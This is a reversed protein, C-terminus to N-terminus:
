NRLKKEVPWTFAHQQSKTHQLPFMLIKGTQKPGATVATWVLVTRGEGAQGLPEALDNRNRANISSNVYYGALPESLLFFISKM